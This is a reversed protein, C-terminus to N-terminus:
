ANVVPLALLKGLQADAEANIDLDICAGPTFTLEGFYIQDGDVYLDVRVYTFEKSLKRALELMEELKNPKAISEKVNKADKTYQLLVWNTTFMLNLLEASYRNQIMEIIQPEGHFCHIKYDHPLKGNEEGIYQEVTIRPEINAYHPECNILAYNAKLWKELTQITNEINLENKNPCIINFGSGHTCKMVFRQPLDDFNIDEINKYVQLLPILHDGCGLSNVYKRVLYKDTCTTKISDDEYIKLWMLKENFTKPSKLNLMRKFTKYYIVKSALVPSIKILLVFCPRLIYKMISM